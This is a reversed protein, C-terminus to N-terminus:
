GEPRIERLFRHDDDSLDATNLLDPRRQFTRRLSENRRWRSIDAHNGSLLVAPVKMGRFEAPRTYQPYQLLGTTFSDDETSEISGVVGEVLRAVAEILVMAALEGGGLVYDGISIEDTALHQRVREDIGEYRGCILVLDDNRSLEEVIPQTLRRGQPSMLVVPVDDALRDEARVAEVAEFLPEPKMLMGPGGGFTYDDVTRHRDHAHDRVNRMQIDIAGRERAKAVIGHDFPSAFMEPFLTLVQFRM